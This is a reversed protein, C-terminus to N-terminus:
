CLVTYRDELCWQHANHDICEWGSPGHYRWQIYPLGQLSPHEEVCEECVEPQQSDHWQPYGLVAQINQKVDFLGLGFSLQVPAWLLLSLETTMSCFWRSFTAKSAYKFEITLRQNQSLNDLYSKDFKIHPWVPAREVWLLMKLAKKWVVKKRQRYSLLMYWFVGCSGRM